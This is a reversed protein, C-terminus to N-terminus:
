MNVICSTTIPEETSKTFAVKKHCRSRYSPIFPFFFLVFFDLRSVSHHETTRTQTDDMHQTVTTLTSQPELKYVWLSCLPSSVVVIVRGKGGEKGTWGM